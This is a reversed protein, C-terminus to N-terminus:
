KPTHWSANDAAGSFVLYHSEDHQIFVCTLAVREGNVRYSRLKSACLRAAGKQRPV